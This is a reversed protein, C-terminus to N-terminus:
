RCPQALSGKRMNSMDKAPSVPPDFIGDVTSNAGKPSVDNVSKSSCRCLCVCGVRGYAGLGFRDRGTAPRTTEGLVDKNMRYFQGEVGM